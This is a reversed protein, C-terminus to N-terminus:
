CNYITKLAFYFKGGMLYLNAFMKPRELTKPEFLNTNKIHVTRFIQPLFLAVFWKITELFSEKRVGLTSIFFNHRKISFNVDVGGGIVM